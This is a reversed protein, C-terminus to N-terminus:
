NEKTEFLDGGQENNLIEVNEVMKLFTLGENVYHSKTQFGM